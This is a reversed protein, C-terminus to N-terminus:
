KSIYLNCKGLHTKSMRPLYLLSFVETEKSLNAPLSWVGGGKLTGGELTHKVHANLCHLGTDVAQTSLPNAPRQPESQAPSSREGNKNMLISVLFLKTEQNKAWGTQSGAESLRWYNAKEYNLKWQCNISCPGPLKLSFENSSTLATLGPGGGTRQSIFPQLARAAYVSAKQDENRFVIQDLEKRAEAEPCSRAARLLTSKWKGKTDFIYFVDKM